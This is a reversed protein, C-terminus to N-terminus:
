FGMKVAINGNPAHVRTGKGDRIVYGGSVDDSRLSGINASISSLSTVSIETAGVSNKTALGGQNDIGLATGLATKFANLTAITGGSAELLRTDGFFLADLLGLAKGGIGTYTVTGGGAGSLTGDAGISVYNNLIDADAATAGTGQNEIGLAVNSGTPDADKAKPKLAEIPTGDAYELKIDTQVPPRRRFWFANYIDGNADPTGDSPPTQGAAPEPNTYLWQSGDALYVLNGARYAITLDFIGRDILDDVFNVQDDSLTSAPRAARAKLTHYPPEVDGLKWDLVRPEVQGSRDLTAVIPGGMARTVSVQNQFTVLMTANCSQALAELLDKVNRQSDTWYHVPYPVLVDLAAFAAEDMNMFPVRAHVTLIRRMMAGIRPFGFTAHTSIIGAPPAGLGVLGEAVCTAWQGPKVAKSDIAAALAAYTPYDAVRPGFSSLGEGLWDISLTNGYGDIMGINRVLDFWVPQINKVVGFGAPHLVGRKDADGRLGGGGDFEETLLDKDILGTSVQATVNLRGTELDPVVSVLNGWFDPVATPGDLAGTSHIVCSAGGWYYELARPHARLERLSIEFQARGAQVRGDMDPSMLEISMTPRSSIAPEWPHGGTGYADATPASAVRVDVRQGTKQDLPRLYILVPKM